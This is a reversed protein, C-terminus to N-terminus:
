RDGAHDAGCRNRGPGVVRCLLQSVRRSATTLFRLRSSVAMEFARKRGLIQGVKGRHDDALAMVLTYLHHGDPDWDCETGVDKALDRDVRKMVSSDRTMLVSGGALTGTRDAPVARTKRTPRKM